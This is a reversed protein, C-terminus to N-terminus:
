QKKVAVRRVLSRDPLDVLTGEIERGHVVFSWLVHARENQFEALWAGSAADWNCDFDGMWLVKGDVVKDAKLTVASPDDSKATFHYIVVEDKCAPHKVRDVCTSTGRWEGLVADRPGSAASAAATLVALLFIKM